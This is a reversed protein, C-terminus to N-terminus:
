AIVDSYSPNSFCHATRAHGTDVLSTAVEEDSGEVCPGLVTGVAALSNDYVQNSGAFSTCNLPMTHAAQDSGAATASSTQTGLVDLTTDYLEGDTNEAIYRCCFPSILDLTHRCTVLSISRQWQLFDSLLALAHADVIYMYQMRHCFPHVQAPSHTGSHQLSALRALPLMATTTNEEMATSKRGCTPLCPRRWSTIAPQCLHAITSLSACRWPYVHQDGALFRACSHILEAHKAAAMFLFYIQVAPQCHRVGGLLACIYQFISIRVHMRHTPPPPPPPPQNREKGRERAIAGEGGGGGGGVGVSANGGKYECFMKLHFIRRGQFLFAFLRNNPSVPRLNVFLYAALGLIAIAIVAGTLPWPNM